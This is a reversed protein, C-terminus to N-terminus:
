SRLRALLLHTHAARSADDEQLDSHASRCNECRFACRTASRIANNDGAYGAMSGWNQNPHADRHESCRYACRM